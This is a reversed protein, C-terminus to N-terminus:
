RSSMTKPGRRGSPAQSSSVNLMLIVMTQYAAMRAVTTTLKGSMYRVARPAKSDNSSFRASAARVRPRESSQIKQRTFIGYQRCPMTAPATSAKARASPSYPAVAM